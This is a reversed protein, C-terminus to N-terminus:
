GHRRELWTPGPWGAQNTRPRDQIVLIPAAATRMLELAVSGYPGHLDGTRGHAALVLLCPSLQDTLIRLAYAISSASRVRTEVVGPVAISHLYAEAFTYNRATLRIALESDLRGPHAVLEPERIIRALVVHSAAIQRLLPLVCEARRSGDLPVLVSGIDRRERVAARVPVVLVSRDAMQIIREATGGLCCELRHGAGHSAILILDVDLVTALMSVQTAPDGELVRPECRAGQTEVARQVDDVHEEALSREVASSSSPEVVRVVFLHANCARAIKVAHAIVRDGLESGDLPVLIRRVPFASDGYTQWAVAKRTVRAISSVM